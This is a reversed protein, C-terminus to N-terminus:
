KILFDFGCKPCNIKEGHNERVALLLNIPRNDDKIGNRHHVIEFSKLYRGIMKEMVLRHEYVYNKRNNPHGPAYSLVYGKHKIKGGKWFHNKSGMFTGKHIERMRNKTEESHKFGKRQGRFNLHGKQFGCNPNNWRPMKGELYFPSQETSMLFVTLNGAGVLLGNQNYFIRKGSTQYLEVMNNPNTLM